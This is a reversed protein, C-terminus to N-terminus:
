GRATRESRTSERAVESATAPWRRLQDTGSAPDARGPESRTVTGIGPGSRPSSASSSPTAGNRESRWQRGRYVGTPSVSAQPSLRSRRTGIETQLMVKDLMLPGFAEGLLAAVARSALSKREHTGDLWNGLGRGPIASWGSERRASSSGTLKPCCPSRHRSCLGRTLARRGGRPLPSSGRDDAAGRGVAGLPRAATPQFRPSPPLRGRSRCNPPRARDRRGPSPQAHPGPDGDGRELVTAASTDRNGAPRNSTDGLYRRWRRMLESRPACRSTSASPKQSVGEL